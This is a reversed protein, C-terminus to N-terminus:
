MARWSADATGVGPGVTTAVVAGPAVAPGTAVGVPEAGGVLSAPEFVVGNSIPATTSIPAM